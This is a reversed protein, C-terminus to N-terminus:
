EQTAKKVRLKFSFSPSVRGPDAGCGGAAISVNYTGRDGRRPFVIVSLIRMTVEKITPVRAVSLRITRNSSDAQVRIGVQFELIM